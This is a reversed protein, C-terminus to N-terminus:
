VWPMPGCIGIAVFSVASPRCSFRRTSSTSRGSVAHFVRVPELDERGHNKALVSTKGLFTEIEIREYDLDNTRLVDKLWTELWKYRDFM